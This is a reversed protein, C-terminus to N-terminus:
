MPFAQCTKQIHSLVNKRFRTHNVSTLSAATPADGGVATADAVDVHLM